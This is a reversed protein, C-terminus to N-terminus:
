WKEDKATGSEKSHELTENKWKARNEEVIRQIRAKSTEIQRENGQIKLMTEPKGFVRDLVITAVMLKAKEAKNGCRKGDRNALSHGTFAFLINIIPMLWNFFAWVFYQGTAIGLTNHIYVGCTNWPILASTVTGAGELANSLTKPHLGMKQYTEAYMRGPVVISIYQEPM